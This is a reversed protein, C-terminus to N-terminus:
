KIHYGIRFAYNVKETNLQGFNQRTNNYAIEASFTLGNYVYIEIGFPIYFGITSKTDGGFINIERILEGYFGTYPFIITNTKNGLPHYKIGLQVSANLGFGFDIDLLNNLHYDFNIGILTPGGAQM